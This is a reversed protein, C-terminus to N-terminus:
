LNETKIIIDKRLKIQKNNLIKFFALNNNEDNVVLMKKCKNGEYIIEPEKSNELNSNFQKIIVKDTLINHKIELKIMSKNKDLFTWIGSLNNNTFIIYLIYVFIVCIITLVAILFPNANQKLEVIRRVNELNIDAPESNVNDNKDYNILSM